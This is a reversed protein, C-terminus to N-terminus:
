LKLMIEFDIMRIGGNDFDQYLGSRKIKDKKNKWLFKCSKTKVIDVIEQPVDLNFASYVLQSIGSTKILMAKGFITLDQLSWMDLKTQM